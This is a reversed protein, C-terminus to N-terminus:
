KDCHQLHFWPKTSAPCVSKWHTSLGLVPIKKKETRPDKALFVNLTLFVGSYRLEGGAETHVLEEVSFFLIFFVSIILLSIKGM